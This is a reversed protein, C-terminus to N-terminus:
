DIPRTAALCLSIFADVLDRDLSDDPADVLARVGRAANYETDVAAAAHFTHCVATLSAVVRESQREFSGSPAGFRASAAALPHRTALIVESALACREASTPDLAVVGAVDHDDLTLAGVEHCAAARGLHPAVDDLHVAVALQHVSRAVRRARSGLAPSRLALAAVLVDVGAGLQEDLENSLETLEQALSRALVSAALLDDHARLTRTARVGLELLNFPKTVLDSAGLELARVRREPDTEGTVVLVPIGLSSNTGVVDLLSMGDGDPLGLDLIVLDPTWDALAAVAATATTVVRIEAFGSGALAEKVLYAQVGDDEVVLVHVGDNTPLEPETVCV